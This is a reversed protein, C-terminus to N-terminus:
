LRVYGVIYPIRPGLVSLNTPLREARSSTLRPTSLDLPPKVDQLTLPLQSYPLRICIQISQLWHLGTDFQVTPRTGIVVTRIASAAICLSLVRYLDLSWGTHAGGSYNVGTEPKSRQIGGRRCKRYPPPVGTNSRCVSPPPEGVVRALYICPPYRPGEALPEPRFAPLCSKSGGWACGHDLIACCQNAIDWIYVGKKPQL